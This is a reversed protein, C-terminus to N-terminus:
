RPLDVTFVTEVGAESTLAISGGHAEVIQRVIWLGIGLGGYHRESVAREFRGFIRQQDAASIGIGRDRVVLRATAGDHLEVTVPKGRGYKLANSILNTLVQDLRLRDWRGVLPASPKLEVPARSRTAEDNFRDVVEQALEALDMEEPQMHMRGTTIRSVDLLESILRELRGIHASARDLREYVLEPAPSIDRTLTRMVGQVQLQLATLPTRLEHGAISLFDDRLRVAQQAEAYLVSNDIALAARGALETALSLEAEGYTRRSEAWVLTIAGVTGRTSNIPVVLASRLGLERSMRLHEADRAGAVLMADTVEPYLQPKGSRLVEPVGTPADPNTPWRRRTEWAYEVKAPDVHAVALQESGGETRMEVACWDALRPVALQAVKALTAAYDLSSGLLASAEALFRQAAETRHQETFDRNVAVVFEVAGDDGRVPTVASTIWRDEGSGHRRMRLVMGAVREGALGRSIPYSSQPLPRGEPDRIEWRKVLEDRRASMLERASPFGSIRAQEENAFLVHGSRDVAIVGDTMTAVILDLLRRAQQLAAGARKQETVDITIGDFRVPAGADDYAARGIAHIWRTEGAATVVRYDVEYLGRDAIARETAERVRAADDPPLRAYIDELSVPADPALGLQARVTQDLQVEHSPLDRHWVGLEGGAVALRFREEARHLALRSAEAHQRALVQPTVDIGLSMIGEVRGDGSRLPEYWSTYWRTTRAGDAWVRTIPVEVAEIPQGRAFVADMAAVFRSDALEPFLDGVTRGVADHLCFERTFRDNVLVLRHEPGITLSFAAPLQMFARLLQAYRMAEATETMMPTGAEDSDGTM